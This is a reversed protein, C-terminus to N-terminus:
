HLVFFFIFLVPQPSPPSSYKESTVPTNPCRFDIATSPLFYLWCRQSLLTPTSGRTAVQLAQQPPHSCISASSRTTSACKHVNRSGYIRELTFLIVGESVCVYMCVCRLPLISHLILAHLAPNTFIKKKHTEFQATVLHNWSNTMLELRLLLVIPCPPHSPIQSFASRKATTRLIQINRAMIQHDLPTCVSLCPFCPSSRSLRRMMLAVFLQVSKM